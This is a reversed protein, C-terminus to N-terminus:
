LIVFSCHMAFHTVETLYESVYLKEKTHKDLLVFHM